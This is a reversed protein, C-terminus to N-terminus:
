DSSRPDELADMTQDVIGEISPEYILWDHRPQFVFAQEFAHDIFRILHDYYGCPDLIAIPKQHLALLRSTIIEFLEDLTGVGGPLVIFADALDNMLLKREHMSSVVRLQSLGELAIEQRALMEPLVGIVEGGLALAERAVAGMMGLAAGGYVIRVGQQALYRGLGGATDTYQEDAGTGTGAFVAITTRSSASTDRDKASQPDAIDSTAPPM